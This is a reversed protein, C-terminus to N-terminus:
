ANEASDNLGKLWAISGRVEAILRGLTCAYADEAVIRRGEKNVVLGKVLATPPAILRSAIVSEM